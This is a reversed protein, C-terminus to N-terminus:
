FGLINDTLEEVREESLEDEEEVETEEIASVKDLSINGNMLMERLEKIENILLNSQEEKDAILDKLILDCVYKSFNRGKEAVLEQVKDYEDSIYITKRM